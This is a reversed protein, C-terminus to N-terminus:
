HFTSEDPLSAPEVGFRTLSYQAATGAKWLVLEVEISDVPGDVKIERKFAGRQVFKLPYFYPGARESWSRGEVEGKFDEGSALKLRVKLVLDNSEGEGQVDIHGTVSIRGNDPICRCAYTWSSARSIGVPPDLVFTVAGAQTSAKM